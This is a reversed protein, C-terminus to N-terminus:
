QSNFYIYMLELLMVQSSIVHAVFNFCEKVYVVILMKKIVICFITLIGLNWHLVCLIHLISSRKIIVSSM